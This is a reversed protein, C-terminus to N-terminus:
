FTSFFLRSLFFFVFSQSGGLGGEGVLVAEVRGPVDWKKKLFFFSQERGPGVGLGSGGAGVRVAAM